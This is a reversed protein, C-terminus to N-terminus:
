EPMHKSLIKKIDDTLPTTQGDIIYVIVCNGKTCLKGEQWAEHYVTFSKTGIKSIWTKIEVDFKFYIPSLYDFDNHAMILPFNELTLEPDFIQMVPKRAMEFWIPFVTNNVHGLADIDGFRPSVKLNVYDSM